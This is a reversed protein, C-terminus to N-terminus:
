GKGAARGQPLCDPEAAWNSHAPSPHAPTPARCQGEPKRASSRRARRPTSLLNSRPQMERWSSPRRADPSGGRGATWIQPPYGPGPPRTQQAHATRTHPGLVSDVAHARTLRCEASHLHCPLTGLPRQGAGKHPTGLSLRDDEVPPGDKPCATPTRQGHATPGPTCTYPGPM